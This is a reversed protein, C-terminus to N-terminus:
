YFGKDPPWPSVRNVTIPYRPRILSKGTLPHSIPIPAGSERPIVFIFNFDLNTKSSGKFLYTHKGAEPPVVLRWIGPRPLDVEFITVKSVTTKGSTVSVGLPDKLDINAGSYQSSVSVIIKHMTDDVLLKYGPLSASRKRRGLLGGIGGSCTKGGLLNKTVKKMKALDSSSKPLEFIQGCTDRALNEFPKVDGPDGCGVTAFFYVNIGAAQARVTADDINDQTADKPPADTFVYLPSDNEPGAKMAEIIGKFTMEPCDGGGRAHLTGIEKTFEAGKGAEKKIARGSELVM